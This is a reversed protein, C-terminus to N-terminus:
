SYDPRLEVVGANKPLVARGSSVLLMLEARLDPMDQHSLVLSRSISIASIRRGPIVVQESLRLTCYTVRRGAVM